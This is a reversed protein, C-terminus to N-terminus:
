CDLVLTTGYASTTQRRSRAVIVWTWNWTLDRYIHPQCLPVPASIRRSSQNERGIRMGGVAQCEDIMVVRSHNLLVLLPRRPLHVADCGVTRILLSGPGLVINLSPVFRLRWSTDFSVHPDSSSVLVSLTESARFRTGLDLITASYRWEGMCM